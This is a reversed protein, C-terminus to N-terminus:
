PAERDPAASTIASALRAEAYAEATTGVCGADLVEALVAAEVTIDGWSRSLVVPKPDTILCALIRALDQKPIDEWDFRESPHPTGNTCLVHLLFRRASQAADIYPKTVSEGAPRTPKVTPSDANPTATM